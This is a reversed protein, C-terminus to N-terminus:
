PNKIQSKRKNHLINQLDKKDAQSIIEQTLKVEKTDQYASHLLKSIKALKANAAECILLFQEFREPRRYADLQELITVLGDNTKSMKNLNSKIRNVLLSLEKYSSPLKYRNCLQKIEDKELDHREWSMIESKGFWNDKLPKMKKIPEAVYNDTYEDFWDKEETAM